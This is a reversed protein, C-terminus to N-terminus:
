GGETRAAEAVILGRVNMAFIGVAVLTLVGALLLAAGPFYLPAQDTTFYAFTQTMALPGIIAGVSSVSALIGQLEGQQNQPVQNSVIGQIAPMVFGALASVVLWVYLTLENPAFAMGIYAVAVSFFGVFATIPAGLRPIM